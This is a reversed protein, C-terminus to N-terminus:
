IRNVVTMMLAAQINSKIQYSWVYSLFSAEIAM